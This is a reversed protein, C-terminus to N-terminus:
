TRVGARRLLDEPDEERAADLLTDRVFAALSKEARFAAKKISDYDAAEVDVSLRRKDM